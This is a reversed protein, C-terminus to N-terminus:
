RELAARMVEWVQWAATVAGRGEAATGGAGQGLWLDLALAGQRALMGLGDTAALGRGRAARLWPTDRPSYVVDIAVAHAPLESWAVV